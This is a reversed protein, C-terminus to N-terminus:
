GTFWFYPNPLLDRPKSFRSPKKGLVQPRATRQTDDKAVVVSALPVQLGLVM